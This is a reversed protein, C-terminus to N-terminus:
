LGFREQLFAIKNQLIENEKEDAQLEEFFITAYTVFEDLISEYAVKYRKKEERIRILAKEDVIYSEKLQVTNELYIKYLTALKDQTTRYMKVFYPHLSPKTTSNAKAEKLNNEFDVFYNDFYLSIKYSSKEIPEELVAEYRLLLFNYMDAINQEVSAYDLLNSDDNKEGNIAREAEQNNINVSMQAISQLTALDNQVFFERKPSDKARAALSEVEEQSPLSPKEMVEVSM